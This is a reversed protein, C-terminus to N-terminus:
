HGGAVPVPWGSPVAPRYQTALESRIGAPVADAAALDVVRLVEGGAGATALPQGDPGAITSLGGFTVDGEPGVLNAYAVVVDSEHARAPILARQVHEYGVPNATPVLILDAGSAALAAAHGPFEIDYCILLGVRRDEFEVVPALETGRRFSGGEMAGFLQVKRYHLKVEGDPGVLTAANYVADGDREAWGFSIGCGTRRALEAMRAIWEGALPQSQRAHLDPRNYGPLFLEPVVLLSAGAAAAAAAQAELALFASGVQGDTPRCQWLALKVCGVSAARAVVHSRARIVKHQRLPSGHERLRDDWRCQRGGM